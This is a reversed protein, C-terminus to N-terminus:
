SKETLLIGLGALRFHKGMQFWAGHDHGAAIPADEHSFIFNSQCAHSFVFAAAASASVKSASLIMWDLQQKVIKTM